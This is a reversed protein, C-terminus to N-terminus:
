FLQPAPDALHSANTFNRGGNKAGYLADDARAFFSSESENDHYQAVGLSITVVAKDSPLGFDHEAVRLRLSEAIAIAQSLKCDNLLVLYEEGGWRTVVDSERV